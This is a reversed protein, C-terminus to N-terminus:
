VLGCVCLVFALWLVDYLLGFVLRMRVNFSFALVVFVCIVCSMPFLVNVCLLLGSLMACWTVFLVCGCYVSVYVCYCVSGLM